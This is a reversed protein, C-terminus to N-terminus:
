MLTNPCSIFWKNRAQCAVIETTLGGDDEGSEHNDDSANECCGRMSDCDVAHEPHHRNGTTDDSKTRLDWYSRRFRIGKYTWLILRYALVLRRRRIDPRRLRRTLLLWRDLGLAGLDPM